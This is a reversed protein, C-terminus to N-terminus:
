AYGYKNYTGLWDVGGGLLYGGVGVSRCQGHPYSFVKPSIKRQVQGWTGGPGLLAAVGTSSRETRVLKVTRMSACSLVCSFVVIAGIM